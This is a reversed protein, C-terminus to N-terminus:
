AQNTLCNGSTDPLWEAGAVRAPLVCFSSSFASAMLVVWRGALESCKTIVVWTIFDDRALLDKSACDDFPNSM